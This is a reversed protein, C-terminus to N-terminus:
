KRRKPKPNLLAKKLQKQLDPSLEKSLCRKAFAYNAKAFSETTGKEPYYSLVADSGYMEKNNWGTSLSLDASQAGKQTTYGPDAESRAHASHIPKDSIIVEVYEDYGHDGGGWGSHCYLQKASVNVFYLSFMFACVIQGFFQKM